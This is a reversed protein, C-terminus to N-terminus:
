NSTALDGLNLPISYKERATQALAADDASMTGGTLGRGLAGLASGVIAGGGGLAGGVLANRGIQEPTGGRIGTDAGALTAGTAGGAIANGWWPLAADAG